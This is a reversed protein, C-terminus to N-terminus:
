LKSKWPSDGILQDKYPEFCAQSIIIKSPCAKGRWGSQPGLTDTRAASLRHLLGSRVPHCAERGDSSWSLYLLPNSKERTRLVTGIRNGNKDLLDAQDGRQPGVEQTADTCDPNQWALRRSTGALTGNSIRDWDRAPARHGQGDFMLLDPKNQLKSWALLVAPGERFSLLGPIYPFILPADAVVAEM